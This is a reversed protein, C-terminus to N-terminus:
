YLGGLSGVGRTGRDFFVEPLDKVQIRFYYEIENGTFRRSLRAEWCHLDRVLTYEQSDFQRLTINYASTYDVHWGPSLNFRTVLNARQTISWSEDSARGGAYSYSLGISWPLLFPAPSAGTPSGLPLEPNSPTIGGGGALNIGANVSLTRVHHPNYLDHTWGIDGYFFGGPQLRVVSSLQSFPHPQGQDKYLFNYSGAVSWSLLNDLRLTEGKRRWKVQVRQDLGFNLRKNPAGSIDIGSFGNFRGVYPFDPSYNFSLSPVVVHRIGLVNGITRNLTGYFTSGTTVNLSWVGAFVNQHGQVDHDFLVGTGNVGPSVNLWGFLRRSDALSADVRAGRRTLHGESISGLTDTVFARQERYDVFLGNMGLYLTSFAKALVSGRLIPLSGITRTPLLISVRPLTQTLSALSAVTGVQPPPVTVLSQDADLDQRREGAVTIAAWDARHALSLTSVLFRNFRESPPRAYDPTQQYDKSSVFNGQATLSTRDSLTQAHNAQFDWDDARTLENRAFSGKFYGDLVYLLKYYSELRVVWSPQAQYYDGSVTFDMYDNPAWYYGV